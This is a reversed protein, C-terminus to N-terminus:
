IVMATILAFCSFICHDDLQWIQGKFCPDWKCKNNQVKIDWQSHCLMCKSIESLMIKLSAWPWSFLRCQLIYCIPSAFPFSNSTCWPEKMMSKLTKWWFASIKLFHKQSNLYIYRLYIYPIEDAYTPLIVGKNYSLTSAIQDVM